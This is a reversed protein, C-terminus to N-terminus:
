QAGTTNVADTIGYGALTTPKPDATTGIQSWGLDVKSTELKYLVGMKGLWRDPVNTEAVLIIDGM